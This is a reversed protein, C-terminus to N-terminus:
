KSSDPLRLVTVPRADFNLSTGKSAGLKLFLYTRSTRSADLGEEGFDVLSESCMDDLPRVGQCLNCIQTTHTAVPIM